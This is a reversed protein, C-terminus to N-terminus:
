ETSSSMYSGKRFPSLKPLMHIGTFTKLAYCKRPFGGAYKNQISRATFSDSSEVSFRLHTCVGWQLISM